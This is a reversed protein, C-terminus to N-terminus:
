QALRWSQWSSVDMIMSSTEGGDLDSNSYASVLSDDVNHVRISRGFTRPVDFNLVERDIIPSLRAHTTTAAEASWPRFQVDFDRTM